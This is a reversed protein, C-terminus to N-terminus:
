NTLLRVAALLLLLWLIVVAGAGIWSTLRAQTAQAKIRCDELVHPPILRITLAVGIPILVIDDLYGLVPIPDPILDIPSFAYAVVVAGFAKAYWPTRPDKIAYYLTYVDRKLARARAIWTL